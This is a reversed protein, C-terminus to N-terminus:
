AILACIKETYFAKLKQNGTDNLHLGDRSYEPPLYGDETKLASFPDIFTYGRDQSLGRIFDNVELVAEVSVHGAGLEYEPYKDRDVVPLISAVVIHAGTTEVADCLAPYATYFPTVNYTDNVGLAIVVLKANLGDLLAPLFTSYTVSNTGSIAANLAPFPAPPIPLGETISDGIFVVDATLNNKQALIEAERKPRDFTAPEDPNKAKRKSLFYVVVGVVVVAIVCLAVIVIPNSM